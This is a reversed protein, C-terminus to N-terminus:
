YLQQGLVEEWPIKHGGARMSLVAGLEECRWGQCERCSGLEPHARHDCCSRPPVLGDRPHQLGGPPNLCPLAPDLQSLGHVCQTPVAGKELEGQVRQIGILRPSNVSLCPAGLSSPIFGQVGVCTQGKAGLISGSGPPAPSPTVFDMRFVMGKREDRM